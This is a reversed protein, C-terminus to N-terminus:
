ALLGPGGRAPSTALTRQLETCAELAIRRHAPPLRAAIARLRQMADVAAELEAPITAPEQQQRQEQQPPPPPPPARDEVTGNALAPSTSPARAPTPTPAPTTSAPTPTPTPPRHQAESAAQEALAIVLTSLGDWETWRECFVEVAQVYLHMAEARPMRGLNKWAEYKAREEAAHWVGPRPAVCEGDEAQWPPARALRSAM